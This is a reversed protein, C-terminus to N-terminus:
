WNRADAMGIAALETIGYHALFITDTIDVISESIGVIIIPLSIGWINRYTPRFKM